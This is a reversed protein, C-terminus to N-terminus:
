LTKGHDIVAILKKPNSTTRITSQKMFADKLNRKWKFESTFAFKLLLRHSFTIAFKIQHRQKVLLSYLGPYRLTKSPNLYSM